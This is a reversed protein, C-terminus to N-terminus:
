GTRQHRVKGHVELPTAFARAHPHRAEIVALRDRVRLNDDGGVATTVHAPTAHRVLIANGRDILSEAL